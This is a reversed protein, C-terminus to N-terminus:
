LREIAMKVVGPSSWNVSHGHITSAYHSFQKIPQAGPGGTDIWIIQGRYLGGYEDLVVLGEATMHFRHLSSTDEFSRFVAVISTGSDHDWDQAIEVDADHWSGKVLFRMM